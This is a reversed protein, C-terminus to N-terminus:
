LQAHRRTKSKKVRHVPPRGICQVHKLTLKKIFTRAQEPDLGLLECISLFSWLETGEDIRRAWNPHGPKECFLWTFADRARVVDLIKTSSRYLLWDHAAQKIVDM